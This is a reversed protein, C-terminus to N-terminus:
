SRRRLTARHRDGAPRSRESEGLKTYAQCINNHAQVHNPDVALGRRFCEVAEDLQNHELLLVGLNNLTRCGLDGVVRLANGLYSQADASGADAAVAEHLRVVAESAKGIELLACGFYTLADANGPYMMLIQRYVAIADNFRQDQHLSVAQQMLHNISRHGAAEKTLSFNAKLEGPGSM